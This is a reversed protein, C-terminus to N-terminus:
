KLKYEIFLTIDVRKSPKPFYPLAKKITDKAAKQLIKHANSTEINKIEKSPLLTFKVKVKGQIRLRKALPPYKKVREIAEYIKSRNVNFYEKKIERKVNKNFSVEKLPEIIKKSVTKKTLNEESKIQKKAPKIEKKFIKKRKVKRKIKKVIKKIKKPKPKLKPKPKPKPPTKIKKPEKNIKKIEKPKPKKLVIHKLSIVKEKKHELLPKIEFFIFAVILFLHILFSFIFYRSM